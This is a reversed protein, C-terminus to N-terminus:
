KITYTPEEPVIIWCLLYLLFGTGALFIAAAWLLRILTVDLGAFNALGGCVGGIVRKNRSRYLKKEAMIYEESRM